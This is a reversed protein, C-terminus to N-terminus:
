PVLAEPASRLPSPMTFRASTAMTRAFQSQDSIEVQVVGGPDKWPDPRHRQAVVVASRM